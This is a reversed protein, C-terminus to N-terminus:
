QWNRTEKIELMELNYYAESLLHGDQDILGKSPTYKIYSITLM